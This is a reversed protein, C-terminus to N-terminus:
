RGWKIEILMIRELAKIGEPTVWYEIDGNRGINRGALGKATLDEWAEISAGADFYNRYSVVLGQRGHVGDDLGLAHQMLTIQRITLYYNDNM